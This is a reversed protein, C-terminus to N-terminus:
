PWGTDGSRQPSSAAAHATVWLGAVWGPHGVQHPPSMGGLVPDLGRPQSLAPLAQFGNRLQLLTVYPRGLGLGPLSEGVRFSRLPCWHQQQSLTKQFCLTRGSSLGWPPWCVRPPSPATDRHGPSGLRWVRSSSRLAGPVSGSPLGPNRSSIRRKRGQFECPARPPARSDAGTGPLIGCVAAGPPRRVGAWGPCGRPRM